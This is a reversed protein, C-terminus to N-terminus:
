AMVIPMPEIILAFFITSMAVPSLLASAIFAVTLTFNSRMARRRYKLLMVIHRYEKVFRRGAQQFIFISIFLGGICRLADSTM